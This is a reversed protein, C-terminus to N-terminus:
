SEFRAPGFPTIITQIAAGHLSFQLRMSRWLWPSTLVYLRARIPCETPNRALLMSM